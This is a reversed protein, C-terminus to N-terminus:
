LDIGLMVAIVLSVLVFFDPLVTNLRGDTVDMKPPRNALFDVGGGGVVPVGLLVALDVLYGNSHSSLTM